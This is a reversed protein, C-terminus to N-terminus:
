PALADGGGVVAASTTALPTTHYNEGGAYNPASSTCGQTSLLLVSLGCITRTGRILDVSHRGVDIGGKLLQACAVVCRAIRVKPPTSALREGEREDESDNDDEFGPRGGM